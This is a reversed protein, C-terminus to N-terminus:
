VPGVAFRDNHWVACSTYNQKKKHHVNGPDSIAGLQDGTHNFVSTAESHFILAIVSDEFSEPSSNKRGEFAAFVHNILASELKVYFPLSKLLRYICFPFM